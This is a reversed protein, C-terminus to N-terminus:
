TPFETPVSAAVWDPDTDAVGPKETGVDAHHVTNAFATQGALGDGAMEKAPKDGAVGRM